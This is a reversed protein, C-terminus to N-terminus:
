LPFFLFFMNGRTFYKLEMYFWIQTKGHFNLSGQAHGNSMTNM